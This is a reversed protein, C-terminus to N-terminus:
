RRRRGAGMALAARLLAPNGDALSGDPLLCTDELGVRTDIGRRVADDLLLWTAEGDGHQLRPAQAGGADLVDHIEAVLALADDVRAGVPEVLIRLVQDGLGSRILVEADDATWVGAEVGIRHDILLRMLAISGPESLNVSAHSLRDTWQSIAHLRQASDPEIWTGTTVGITAQIPAAALVAEVAAWRVSERGHADRPHVHFETVGLEVCGSLDAALEEPSTPM